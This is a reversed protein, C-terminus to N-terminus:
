CSGIRSYPISSLVLPFNDDAFILIKIIAGQNEASRSLYKVNGNAIAAIGPEKIQDL